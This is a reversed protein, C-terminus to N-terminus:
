DTNKNRPYNCSIKQRAERFTLSFAKIAVAEKPSEVHQFCLNIVPGEYKLPINIQQLLRVTNCKISNHIGPKELNRILKEFNDKMLEPHAIACYSM